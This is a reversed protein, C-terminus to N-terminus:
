PEYGGLTLRRAHFTQAVYATLDGGPIPRPTFTERIRNVDGKIRDIRFTRWDDRSLDWAVLYWRSDVSVLGHPEVVRKAARMEGDLYRFRVREYKYSAEGLAAM